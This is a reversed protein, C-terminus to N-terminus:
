APADLCKLTFVINLTSNPKNPRPYNREVPESQYGFAPVGSAACSFGLLNKLDLRIDDTLLSKATSVFDAGLRSACHLVPRELEDKDLEPFLSKNHDFVPAM